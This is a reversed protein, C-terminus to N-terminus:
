GGRYNLGNKGKYIAFPIRGIQLIEENGLKTLFDDNTSYWLNSFNGIATTVTDVVSM